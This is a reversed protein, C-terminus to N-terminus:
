KARAAEKLAEANAVKEAFTNGEIKKAGFKWTAGVNGMFEDGATSVSFNLMFDRNPYHFAGIAIGTEGRYQGLGVAVESPAAPDYGMSQLSAMAAAMAGLEEVRTELKDIRNDLRNFEGVLKKNLESNEGFANEVADEVADEMMDNHYGEVRGQAEAAIKDMAVKLENLTTRITDADANELQKLIAKVEDQYKEPVKALFKKAAQKVEDVGANELNAVFNEVADKLEGDKLATAVEGLVERLETKFKALQESEKVETIVQDLRTQLQAVVNAVDEPKVDKLEGLIARVAEKHEDPVKKLLDQVAQQVKEKDIEANELQAVVDKLAAKIDSDKM